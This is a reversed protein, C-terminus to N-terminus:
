YNFELTEDPIPWYTTTRPKTSNNVLLRITKNVIDVSVEKIKVVELSDQQIILDGKLITLRDYYVDSSGTILVLINDRNFNSEGTKGYIARTKVIGPVWSYLYTPYDWVYNYLLNGNFFINTVGCTDRNLNKIQGQIDILWLNPSPNHRLDSMSVPTYDPKYDQTIKDKECSYFVTVVLLSFFFVLKKM